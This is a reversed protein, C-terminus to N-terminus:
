RLHQLRVVAATADDQGLCCGDLVAQALEGPPADRIHEMRSLTEGAEVGDSLLILVEGRRLSLQVTSFRAEEVSLGPPPTATGIKEARSSKLLWSPAGGWKYLVVSGTSLNIEALDLTTAGAKGQLVLISNLSRLAHEAPFGLSLMQRLRTAASEGEQAAGIGTGMGDCLLVFYRGETGPFALCCDGNAADRPSSRAACQISYMTRIREGRRPLSDALTRLYDALFAYQQVLALRYEERLKRDAQIRRLQLQGRHLEPVLRGPKRCLVDMPNHLASTTLLASQACANRASCAGCANSRVLDLVAEEDVPSARPELLQQRTQTLIRAALELRVQALGTEGRRHHLPVRPPMLLALAGGALLGPLLNADWVDCLAMIVACSAAPAAFRWLRQRLPILRTLYALCLVATMPVRTIRSLDLGLGALAAAPFAGAVALIGAAATGPNLWPVPLARSLALVAAGEAIWDTLADRRRVVRAFLAAAAPALLVRLLYVPLPTDAQGLLQFGVGAASVTLACLAPILLPQETTDERKGLALAAAMAGLTWIMGQFGATGWYIRYGLLAGLGAALCRWGTLGAALGMALPQAEEMMTAASLFFGSGALLGAQMLHRLKPESWWRGLTRKGRRLYTEMSTMM